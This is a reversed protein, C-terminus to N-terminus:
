QSSCATSSENGLHSAPRVSVSSITIQFCFSRSYVDRIQELQQTSSPKTTQLLFQLPQAPFNFWALLFLTLIIIVRDNDSALQDSTKRSLNHTYMKLICKGHKVQITYLQLM